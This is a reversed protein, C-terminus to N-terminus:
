GMQGIRLVFLRIFWSWSEWPSYKGFKRINSLARRATFMKSGIKDEPRQLYREDKLGLNGTMAIESLLDTFDYKEYNIYYPLSSMPMKLESVCFSFIYNAFRYFGFTRLLSILKEPNIIKNNAHLFIAIDSLQRLGIGENLLHKHIHSVLHVITLEPSLVKCDAGCINKSIIGEDKKIINHFKKELNHAFLIHHFKILESHNEVPIGNIHCLSEKLDGEEVHIGWSSIQRNAKDYDDENIYFLDIDGSVRLEPTPYYEAIALGKVLVPILDIDAQLRTTIYNLLLRHKHNNKVVSQSLYEWYQFLKQPPQYNLPVYKLADFVIAEVTQKISFQLIQEWDKVTVDTFDIELPRQWLGSRLLSYFIKENM